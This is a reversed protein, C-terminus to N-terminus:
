GLATYRDGLQPAERCLLAEVFEVLEERGCSRCPGCWVVRSGPTIRVAQWRDGATSGEWPGLLEVSRGGPRAVELREDLEGCTCCRVLRAGWGRRRLEECVVELGTSSAAVM